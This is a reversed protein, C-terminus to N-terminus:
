ASDAAEHECPWKRGPCHVSEPRGERDRTCYGCYTTGGDNPAGCSCKWAAPASSVGTAAPASTSITKRQSQSTGGPTSTKDQWAGEPDLLDRVGTVAVHHVGHAQAADLLDHVRGVAAVAERLTLYPHGSEDTRSAGADIGQDRLAQELHRASAEIAEATFHEQGDDPAHAAFGESGYDTIHDADLGDWGPQEPYIESMLAETRIVEDGCEPCTYAITGASAALAAYMLCGDSM